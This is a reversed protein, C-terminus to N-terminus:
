YQLNGTFQLGYKPRRARPPFPRKAAPCSQRSLHRCAFPTYRYLRLIEQMGSRPHNGAQACSGELTSHLSARARPPTLGRRPNVAFNVAGATPGVQPM